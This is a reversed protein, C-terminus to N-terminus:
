MMRLGNGSGMLEEGEEEEAMMMCREEMIVM